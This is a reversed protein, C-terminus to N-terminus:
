LASSFRQTLAYPQEEFSNHLTAWRLHTGLDETFGFLEPPPPPPDLEAALGLGGSTLLCDM